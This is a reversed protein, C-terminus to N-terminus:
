ENKSLHAKIAQIGLAIGPVAGLLGYAIRENKTGLHDRKDKLYSLANTGLTAASAIATTLADEKDTNGLLTEKWSDHRKKRDHLLKALAALGTAGLIGIGANLPDKLKQIITM